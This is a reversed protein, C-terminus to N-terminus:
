ISPSFCFVAYSIGLHSSNLRTSKRDAQDGIDLWGVEFSADGDELLLGLELADAEGVLDRIQNGAPDLGVDALDFTREGPHDRKAGQRSSRFLTTYPFLTFSSPRRFASSPM